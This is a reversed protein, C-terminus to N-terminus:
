GRLLFSHCGCPMCTPLPRLRGMGGGFSSSMRAAFDPELGTLDCYAVVIAQACNSGSLFLEAAKTSHDM